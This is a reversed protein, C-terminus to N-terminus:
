SVAGQMLQLPRNQQDLLFFGDLKNKLHKNGIIEQLFRLRWFGTLGANNKKLSGGPSNKM